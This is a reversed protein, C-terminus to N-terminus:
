TQARRLFRPGEEGTEGTPLFGARALVRGSAANDPATEAEVGTVGPQSLAWACIANVAETMYGHGCFGDRLGYGLEVRGNLPPGKFSLDGAAEGPQEKLEMVWVAHWLRNAPDGRCGALMQAYAQKLDPDPEEAALTQMAEDSVPYLLLRATELEVTTYAAARGTKGTPIEKAM